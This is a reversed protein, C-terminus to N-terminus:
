CKKELYSIIKPVVTGRSYEQEFLDRANKGLSQRLTINQYLSLISDRLQRSSDSRRPKWFGTPRGTVSVESIVEGCKGNLVAQAVSNQSDGVFIIPRGVALIGALKSPVILGQVRSDLSILHIDGASLSERLKERPQYPLMRCNPLKHKECFLEIEKRKAGDGIFLFRIRKEHVLLRAADLITEFSHGKGMNGSYMIIMDDDSFGLSKRFTNEKCSLPYLRKEDAWPPTIQIRSEPIGKKKLHEAMCEGLALLIDCNMLARQSRRHLWKGFIFNLPIAGLAIALDPYLDDM